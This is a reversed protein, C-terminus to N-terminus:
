EILEIKTGGYLLQRDRCLDHLEPFTLSAYYETADQNEKEDVSRKTAKANPQKTQNITTESLARKPGKM